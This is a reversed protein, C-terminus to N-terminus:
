ANGDRRMVLLSDGESQLVRLLGAVRSIRRFYRSMEERSISHFGFKEYFPGLISRCMLYLDGSNEDLLREIIARAVGLGRWDPDVVISALERSGDGHPKVQGCGIVEGTPSIAMVFRRWDLGTPNIHGIQVLRQIAPDDEATAPRLTFKVPSFNKM